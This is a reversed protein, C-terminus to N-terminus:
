PVFEKNSPCSQSNLVVDVSWPKVLNIIFHDQDPCYKVTYESASLGCGHDNAITIQNDENVFEAGRCAASNPGKMEMDVVGSQGDHRLIKISFTQVLLQGGYCLPGSPFQGEGTCARDQFGRLHRDDSASADIVLLLTLLVRM